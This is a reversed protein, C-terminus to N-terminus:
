QSYRSIMSIFTLCLKTQAHFHKSQLGWFTAHWHSKLSMWSVLLNPSVLNLTWNRTDLIIEQARGARSQERFVSGLNYRLVVLQSCSDFFSLFPFYTTNTSHFILNIFSFFKLAIERSKSIFFQQSSLLKEELEPKEIGLNWTNLYVYGPFNFLTGM